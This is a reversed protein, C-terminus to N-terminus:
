RWKGMRPSVAMLGQVNGNGRSKISTNTNTYLLTTCILGISIVIKSPIIEIIIILLLM